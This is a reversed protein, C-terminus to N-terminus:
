HDFYISWGPHFTLAQEIHVPDDWFGRDIDHINVDQRKLAELILSPHMRLRDSAYAIAHGRRQVLKLMFKEDDKLGVDMFELFLPRAMTGIAHLIFWRDKRLRDSAYQFSHGNSQIAILVVDQDDRLGPSAFRLDMGINKVM